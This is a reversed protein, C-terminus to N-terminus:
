SFDKLYTTEYEKNKTEPESLKFAGVHDHLPVDELDCLVKNWVLGMRQLVCVCVCVRARAYVCVCVWTAHSSKGQILPSALCSIAKQNVGQNVLCEIAWQM